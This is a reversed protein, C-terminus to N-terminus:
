ESETSNVRPRGPQRRREANFTDLEDQTFVRSHGIMQGEIRRKGTKKLEDHLYKKMMRLSIGLYEAAEATSYLKM